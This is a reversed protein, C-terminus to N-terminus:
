LSEWLLWTLFILANSPTAGVCQWPDLFPYNWWPHPPSSKKQSKSKLIINQRIRYVAIDRCDPSTRRDSKLELSYPKAEQNLKKRQFNNFRSYELNRLYPLSLNFRSYELNKFKGFSISFDPTSWIIFWSDVYYGWQVWPTACMQYCWLLWKHYKEIIAAIAGSHNIFVVSNPTLKFIM